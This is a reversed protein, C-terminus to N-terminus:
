REYLVIQTVYPVNDPANFIVEGPPLTTRYATEADSSSLTEREFSCITGELEELEATTVGLYPWFDSPYSNNAESAPPWAYVPMDLYYSGVVAAQINTFYAADAGTANCAHYAATNVGRPTMSPIAILALAISLRRLLDRQPTDFLLRAWPLALLSFGPVLARPLYINNWVLSVVMALVPVIVLISAILRAQPRRWWSWLAGITLVYIGFTGAWVPITAIDRLHYITLTTPLTTLLRLPQPDPLWYGDSVDSSQQIIFPIYSASVVAVVGLAVIWRWRWGGHLLIGIGFAALYLYGYAHTLPLATGVLVFWAPREAFYALLALLLLMTFFAYTRAETAYYIQAPLLAFVLAATLSERETFDFVWALRYVLVIAVLGFILSPLRLVPGIDTPAVQAWLWFPAYSLPPNVDIALTALLDQLTNRIMVGTFTEDFWVYGFMLPLRVVLALGLIWWLPRPLQVNVRQEALGILAMLPWYPALLIRGAATGPPMQLRLVLYAYSSGVITFLLALLAINVTL